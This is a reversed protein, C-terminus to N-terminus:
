QNIKKYETRPGSHCLKCNTTAEGGTGIEHCEWCSKHIVVKASLTEDAIDTPARHHCKSCPQAKLTVKGSEHHCIKCDIWFDDFYDQHPFKLKSANIEHHCTKCEVEFDEYHMQHPFSFEGASSPSTIVEPITEEHLSSATDQVAVPPTKVVPSSETKEPKRAAGFFVSIILCILCGLFTIQKKM